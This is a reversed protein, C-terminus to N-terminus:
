GLLFKAINSAVAPHSDKLAHAAFQLLGNILEYQRDLPFESLTQVSQVLPQQAAYQAVLEQAKARELQFSCLSLVTYESLPFTSAPASM